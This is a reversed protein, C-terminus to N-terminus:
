QKGGVSKGEIQSTIALVREGGRHKVGGLGFLEDVLPNDEQRGGDGGVNAVLQYPLGCPQVAGHAVRGCGGAVRPASPQVKILRAM